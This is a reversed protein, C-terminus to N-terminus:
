LRVMVATQQLNKGQLLRLPGIAESNASVGVTVSVQTGRPTTTTVTPTITVTQGTIGRSTLVDQIRQQALVSTGGPRTATRVGEYAAITLSQKLFIGNSLEIAGFVLVFLLPITIAAEVAATGRRGPTKARRTLRGVAKRCSRDTQQIPLKMTLQKKSYKSPSAPM